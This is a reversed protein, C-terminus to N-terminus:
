WLNHPSNLKSGYDISGCNRTDKEAFISRTIFEEFYNVTCFLPVEIKALECRFNAFIRRNNEGYRNTRMNPVHSYLLSSKPKM